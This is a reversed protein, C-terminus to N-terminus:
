AAYQALLEPVRAPQAFLNALSNALGPNREAAALLEMLQAPPELIAETWAVAPGAVTDLWAAATDRMWEQDFPGAHHVIRRAYIDACRM